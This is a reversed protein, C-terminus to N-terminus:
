IRTPARDLYFSLVDGVYSVSDLVLSGFGATAFDKFSDPYYRKVYEVLGNRISNFDRSSYNIIKQTKTSNNARDDAM